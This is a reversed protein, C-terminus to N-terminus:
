SEPHEQKGSEGRPFSCPTGSFACCIGLISSEAPFKSGAAQEPDFNRLLLHCPPSSSLGDGQSTVGLSLGPVALGPLLSIGARCCPWSLEQLQKAASFSFFDLDFLPPWSFAFLSDVSFHSSGLTPLVGPSPSPLPPEGLEPLLLITGESLSNRSRRVAGGLGVSM